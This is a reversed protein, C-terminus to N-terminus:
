FRLRDAKGGPLAVFRATAEAVVRGSADRLRAAAPYIRRGPGVIGEVRLARGTYAPERFRLQMDATVTIAKHVTYV